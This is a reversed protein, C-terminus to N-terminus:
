RKTKEINKCTKFSYQQSFDRPFLLSFISPLVCFPFGKVLFDTELRKCCGYMCRIISCCSTSFRLWCLLTCYRPTVYRPKVVNVCTAEVTALAPSCLFGALFSLVILGGINHVCACAVQFIMFLFFSVICIQQRGVKAIESLPALIVSGLGYGLVYMSLDLTATVHGVHFETEIQEQGPTYISSGMYNICSYTM